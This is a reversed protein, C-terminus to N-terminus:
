HVICIHVKLLSICKLLNTSTTSFPGFGCYDIMLREIFTQKSAFYRRKGGTVTRSKNRHAPKKKLAKSQSWRVELFNIM